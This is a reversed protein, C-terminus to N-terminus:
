PDTRDDSSSRNVCNFYFRYDTALLFSSFHVVEGELIELKELLARSRRISKIALDRVQNVVAGAGTALDIGHIRFGAFVTDDQLAADIPFAPIRFFV